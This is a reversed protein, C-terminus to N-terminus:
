NKCTLLFLFSPYMWVIKNHQNCWLVSFIFLSRLIICTLLINLTQAEWAFFIHIEWNALFKLDKRWIPFSYKICMNRYNKLWRCIKFFNWFTLNCETFFLVKAFHAKRLLFLNTLNGIYILINKDLKPWPSSFIKIIESLRSHRYIPLNNLEM